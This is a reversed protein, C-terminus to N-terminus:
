YGKEKLLVSLETVTLKELKLLEEFPDGELHLLRAFAPETKIGKRKLSLIQQRFVDGALDLLRGEVVMHRVANQETVPKNEGYIEVEYGSIEFRCVVHGNDTRVSFYPYFRFTRTLYEAFYPLDPTRCIIDIDSGPVDIGLPITGAMVPSYDHLKEWVGEQHLLEDVQKMKRTGM